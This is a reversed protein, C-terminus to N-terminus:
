KDVWGDIVKRAHETTDSEKGGWPSYGVLSRQGHSVEPLFVPTSQLERRWPDGQGLSLARTVQMAPLNKKKKVMQAVPFDAETIIFFILVCWYSVKTLITFQSLQETAQTRSKAVGYIM